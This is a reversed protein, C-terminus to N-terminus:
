EGPLTPLEARGSASVITVFGVLLAGTSTRTKM